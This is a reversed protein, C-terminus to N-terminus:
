EFLAECGMNGLHRLGNEVFLGVFGGVGTLVARATTHNMRRAGHTLATFGWSRNSGGAVAVGVAAGWGVGDGLAGGAAGGIASAVGHSGGSSVAGEIAGGAVAGPLDNWTEQAM